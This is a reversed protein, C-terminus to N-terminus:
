GALFLMDLGVRQGARVRSIAHKLNVRYYGKSGQVPRHSVAIIAADGQRLPLVMPRSQMRPRQETMVFEGGEFDRDPDSLLAVWQLPFLQQAAPAQHLAQYEGARLLNIGHGAAPALGAHAQRFERFGDPYRSAVGLAESWRNAIPALKEYLAQHWNELTDSQPAPAAFLEGSGPEASAPFLGHSGAEEAWAQACARDFVRPLLAHGERDLQVAIDQWDFTDVGSIRAKM